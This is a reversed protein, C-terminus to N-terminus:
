STFVEVRTSAYGVCVVRGAFAAGLEGAFGSTGERGVQMRLKALDLPATLWSAAAGAGLSCGLAVHFPM